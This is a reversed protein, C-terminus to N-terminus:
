VPELIDPGQKQRAHLVRIIEIENNRAQMAADQLQCDESAM